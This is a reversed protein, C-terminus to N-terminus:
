MAKRIACQGKFRIDSHGSGLGDFGSATVTWSPASVRAQKGWLGSVALWEGHKEELTEPNIDGILAMILAGLQGGLLL